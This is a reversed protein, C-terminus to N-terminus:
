RARRTRRSHAAHRTRGSGQGNRPGDHRARRARRDPQGSLRARPVCGVHRPRRDACDGSARRGRRPMRMSRLPAPSTFASCKKATATAQKADVIAVIPRRTGSRQTRRHGRACARALQWGQELGVVNDTARPFRNDPDPFSPLLAPPRAASRRMAAGTNPAKGSHTVPWRPVLADGRSLTTDSMGAGQTHQGPCSPDCQLVTVCRKEAHRQGPRDSALRDLFFTSRNAAIRLRCAKRAASRVAARVADADDDVLQIPTARNAGTTRRWDVALRPASRESDLEEIGAEQEIVEPGNM